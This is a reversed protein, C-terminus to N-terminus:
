KMFERCLARYLVTVLEERTLLKRYMKEGHENGNVLGNREAWERAEASWNAADKKAEEAIWVNMMQNFQEQTM